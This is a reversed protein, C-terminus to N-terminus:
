IDVAGWTSPPCKGGHSAGPTLVLISHLLLLVSIDEESLTLQLLLSQGGDVMSRTQPLHCLYEAELPLLM